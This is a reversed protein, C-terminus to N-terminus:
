SFEQNFKIRSELLSNEMVKELGDLELNVKNVKYIHDSNHVENM